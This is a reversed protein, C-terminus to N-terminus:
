KPGRKDHRPRHDGKDIDPPKRNQDVVRDLPNQNPNQAYKLNYNGGSNPGSGEGRALVCM